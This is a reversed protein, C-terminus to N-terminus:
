GHSAEQEGAPSDNLTYDVGVFRLTSSSVWAHGSADQFDELRGPTVLIIKLVVM